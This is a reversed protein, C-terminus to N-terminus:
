FRRDIRPYWTLQFTTSTDSQRGSKYVPILWREYQVNAKLEVDPTLRKVVDFSFDTQTTGGPIFDKAAKAGRYSVQLWERPSLHYTLWAQGGKGERGIWDGMLLGNSTYGNRQVVETYMDQGGTSLGTDPDTSVAEARLDLKPAGPFHSLYLGPRIAAHRPATIPFVDDHVESDSYLTLWKTLYPLRWSFDVSSFRAGPDNRSFKEGGNTDSISYFSHWFTGFTVPAHGVGGWIVTRQFGFEFNPTPKFSIKEAHTWPSVPDNHGKLPGVFFDYRILGAIRSIYPIYLPEVRNIRFSWVNEANNSWAMGGGVGPGYWNDMKGFSVEHGVIHASVYGELVTLNNVSSIPGLPITTNGPLPVSSFTAFDDIRALTEALSLPYGEWSPAHQIEGRFYVSFMGYHARASLGTYNNFGSAYPRGFDNIDTQGLHFSDRLPTGGIGMVREYVSDLGARGFKQDLPIRMDPQLEKEIAAYIDIAEDSTSGTIRDASLDLMHAVSLRTWPRMGLFVTDVFGLGYLRMVAPYIWSDLPIYSSSMGEISKLPEYRVFHITERPAPLQDASAPPPTPAASPSSTQQSPTEAQTSLTQDPAAITSAASIGTTM